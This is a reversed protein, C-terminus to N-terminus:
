GSYKGENSGANGMIKKAYRMYEEQQLNFTEQIERQLEKEEEIESQLSKRINIMKNGYNTENPRTESNIVGQDPSPSPNETHM